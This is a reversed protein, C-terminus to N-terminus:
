SNSPSTTDEDAAQKLDRLLKRAGSFDFGTDPSLEEPDYRFGCGAKVLQPQDVAGPTKTDSM